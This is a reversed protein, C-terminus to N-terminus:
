KLKYKKKYREVFSIGVGLDLIENEKPILPKRKTTSIIDDVRTNEFVDLIVKSNKRPGKHVVVVELIRNVNGM